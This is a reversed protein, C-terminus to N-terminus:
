PSVALIALVSCKPRLISNSNVSYGNMSELGKSSYPSGENQYNLSGLSGLSGWVGDRGKENRGQNNGFPLIQPIFM